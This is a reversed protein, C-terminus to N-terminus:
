EVMLKEFYGAGPLEIHILYMGSKLKRTDLEIKNIGVQTSVSQRQLCAGSMDYIAIGLTEPIQTEFQVLVQDRAPNPYIKLQSINQNLGELGAHIVKVQTEAEAVTKFPENLDLSDTAVVFFKYRNHDKGVFLESTKSTYNLWLVYASDNTSVFVHYYKIGAGPDTGSWNVTFISDTTEAPLPSVESVPALRDITNMFENTVIPQNFDFIITAKNTVVTNQPLDKLGVTYNFRGEGEPSIKNPPLFGLSDFEVLEMSIRDLSHFAVYIVGNNTDLSGEIQVLIPLKPYMDVLMNFSKAFPQVTLTTDGFTFQGFSFTSLDFHNINLTDYVFVELAAASATSKNEFYVTYNKLGFPTIYNDVTYGQPGVIENPDFSSVGNSGTKNGSKRRFKAWCGEETLKNDVGDVIMGAVAIGMSTAVNLGPMFSTACQTISSAWSVFGWLGSGVVEPEGPKMSEPTIYGIPDVIKDVLGYCGAGPIMGIMGTAFAKMAAATICARVETPMPGKGLLNIDEFWPDLLWANMELRGSPSKIRVRVSKSSQGPIEPIYVSYFRTAKGEFGAFSDSVFYLSVSDAIRTYDQGLEKIGEPLAFRWDPFEVELGPVDSIAFMILTGRADTNSLNGYSLNFTQWRNTLYRDRATVIVWPEPREGNQIEFYEPLVLDPKGNTQIVVDYLGLSKGTLDFKALLSEGSISTLVTTDSVIDASGSKRLVVTADATFGAGFLYMTAAGSNGGYRPEAYSLVPELSGSGVPGASLVFHGYSPANQILVTHNSTNLTIGSQIQNWNLGANSSHYVKISDAINGNLRDTRYKLTLSELTDTFNQPANNIRWWGQVANSTTYHQGGFHDVLLTHSQSRAKNKFATLYSSYNSSFSTDVSHTMSIIGLNMIKAEGSYDRLKLHASTDVVLYSGTISSITLDNIQSSGSLVVSDEVVVPSNVGAIMPGSFVRPGKGRLKIEYPEMRGHNYVNSYFRLQNYWRSPGRGALGYNHFNGEIDIVYSGNNDNLTDLLTINGKLRVGSEYFLKGALKYDGEVTVDKFTTNYGNLTDFSRISGNVFRHNEAFLTFSDAQFTAKQFNFVSNKFVVDSGLNVTGLTDGIFFENEFFVSGLQSVFQNGNGVLHTEYPNWIGENALDGSIFIRNYWRPPAQGVLGKNIIDGFIMLDYSGYNDYLSDLITLSGTFSVNNNYYFKGKLKTNGEVNTNSANSEHFILTDNGKINLNRLEQRLTYLTNGNTQIIAKNGELRNDRFQVKSDLIIEGLTDAVVFENEFWVDAGQKLHQNQTGTLLTRYPKWTGNNEINGTVRIENYWQSPARGVWGQNLIDGYIYLPFTGSLDCISDLVTLKGTFSNTGNYRYFGKIKVDGSAHMNTSYTEHWNLTDNSVIRLNNIAHRWALFTHGNTQLTARNGTFENEKFQVNSQLVLIVNSDATIFENEFWVGDSQKLTHNGAGKIVTNFPKWVGYNEINGHVEIVNYWNGPAQRIINGHNIVNEKVVVTYSGSNDAFTGLNTLNNQFHLGNMYHMNGALSVNGVFEINAILSNNLELTDSSYIRGNKMYVGQTLLRHGNTNLISKGLDLELSDFRIDSGLIIQGFTDMNNWFGQFRAGSGSSIVQNSGGQLRTEYPKWTGYNEINGKPVITFYWNTPALQISGHNVINGNVTLEFSGYADILVAGNNITLSNITTNINLSIQHNIIVEDNVGPVTGSNWISSNNWSGDSVSTITIAKSFFPLFFLITLLLNGRFSGLVITLM